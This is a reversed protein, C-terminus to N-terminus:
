LLTAQRDRDLYDDVEGALLAFLAREDDSICGDCRPPEWPPEPGLWGLGVAPKGTQGCWNGDEDIDAWRPWYPKRATLSPCEDLHQAASMRLFHDRLTPLRPTSM